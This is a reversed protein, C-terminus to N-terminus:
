DATSRAAADIEPGRGALWGEIVSTDAHGTSDSLLLHDGVELVTDGAPAFSRGGRHVLLVRIGGPPHTSALPRGVVAAHETLVAEVVEADLSGVPSLEVDISSPRAEAVLHLRKALAQLTTGQLLVSVVVVFFVVDFVLDGDDLGGTLAFTALVIPVAGRLGAWSTFVVDRLPWRFPLLCVAAALPRAVLVLGLAIVVAQWAVGPLDSPFVLIGLLFFLGIQAAEGLGAHFTRIARRHRPAVHAVAVGAVYVALYGSADTVAALGYAAAGVAAALLPQGA